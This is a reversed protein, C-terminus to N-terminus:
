PKYETTFEKIVTGFPVYIKYGPHSAVLNDFKIVHPPEESEIITTAPGPHNGCNIFAPIRRLVYENAQREEYAFYYQRDSISGIGIFFSGEISSQRELSIIKYVEITQGREGCGIILGMLMLVVLIVIYKKM